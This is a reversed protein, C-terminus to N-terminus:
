GSRRDARPRVGADRRIAEHLAAIGTIPDTLAAITLAGKIIKPQLRLDLHEIITLVADVTNGTGFLPGKPTYWTTGVAFGLCQDPWRDPEGGTFNPCLLCDISCWPDSGPVLDWPLDTAVIHHRGVRLLSFNDTM